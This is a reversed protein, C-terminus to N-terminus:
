PMANMAVMVVEDRTSHGHAKIRPVLGVHKSEKNAKPIDCVLFRTPARRCACAAGHAHIRMEGASAM